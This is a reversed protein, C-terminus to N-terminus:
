RDTKLWRGIRSVALLEISVALLLGKVFLYVEIHNYMYITILIFNANLESNQAEFEQGM